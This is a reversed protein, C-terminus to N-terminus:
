QAAGGVYVYAYLRNHRGFFAAKRESAPTVVCTWYLKMQMEVALGECLRKLKGAYSSQRREPHIFFFTDAMHFQSSYWFQTFLLGCAGVVQGDSTAVCLFGNGLCDMVRARVKGEDMAEEGVEAHMMRLLGM